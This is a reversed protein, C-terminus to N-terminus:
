GAGSEFPERNKARYQLPTMGVAEKFMREFHTISGYGVAQTIDTVAERTETLLRQASSIRTATIYEQVTMGTVEKFTHCLHSKSLYFQRCLEDLSAIDAYEQSIFAAIEYIKRHKDSAIAPAAIAPRSRLLILLLEELRLRICAIYGARKEAGEALLDTLLWEMRRREDGELQLMMAQVQRLPGAHIGELQELAGELVRGDIELLTREHPRDDAASTRHIHGPNIWVVAGAQIAYTKTNIFYQRRGEWLYYFEYFSHFHRSTMDTGCDRRRREVRLGPISIMTDSM